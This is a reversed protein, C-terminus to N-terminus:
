PLFQRNQVVRWRYFRDLPPLTSLDANEAAYDPIGPNNPDIYREIVTAGRYEGSIQDADEDFVLPNGAPRQQLSQAKMHITFTNSKTTIRPYITTYIRERINEGTLANVAWFGASSTDKM